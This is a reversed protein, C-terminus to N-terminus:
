VRKRRRSALCRDERLQALWRDVIALAEKLQEGLAEARVTEGHIYCDASSMPPLAGDNCTCALNYPFYSRDPKAERLPRGLKRAGRRPM